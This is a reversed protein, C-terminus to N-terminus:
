LYPSKSTCSRNRPPSPRFSFALWKLRRIVFIQSSSQQSLTQAVFRGEVSYLLRNRPPCQHFEHQELGLKARCLLCPGFPSLMTYWTSILCSIAAISLRSKSEFCAYGFAWISQSGDEFWSTRRSYWLMM